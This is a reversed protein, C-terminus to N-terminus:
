PWLALPGFYPPELPTIDGTWRAEQLPMLQTTHKPQVSYDHEQAWDVELTPEQTLNFGRDSHPKVSMCWILMCSATHSLVLAKRRPGACKQALQKCHSCCCSTSCQVNKERKTTTFVTVKPLIHDDRLWRKVVCSLRHDYYACDCLPQTPHCGHAVLINESTNFISVQAVLCSLARQSSIIYKLTTWDFLLTRFIFGKQQVEGSAALSFIEFLKKDVHSFLWFDKILSINMSSHKRKNKGRDNGRVQDSSQFNNM